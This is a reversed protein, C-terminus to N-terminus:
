DQGTPAVPSGDINFREVTAGKRLEAFIERVIDGTMQDGLKARMDEFAPPPATRRDEVKIVHWGFQTKVPTETFTGPALAFAADAFEPVMADRTFYDLDGGQAASPGTSKAKALDAFNAGSKLEAIIAKAEDETKVLIHRARIEEKGAYNKLFADYRQRLAEDTLRAAIARGLYVERLVADEAQAMRRVVEQDDRLGSARAKNAALKLDILRDVLMPFLTSMPLNRYQDPLGRQFASVDSLRIDSGNVTAVVPDNDSQALAATLPSTTLLALSFALAIARSHTSFM